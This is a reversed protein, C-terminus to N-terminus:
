EFATRKIHKLFAAVQAFVKNHVESIIERTVVTGAPYKEIAKDFTKSVVDQLAERAQYAEAIQLIRALNNEVSTVVLQNLEDPSRQALDLFAEPDYPIVLRDPIEKKELVDFRYFYDVPEGDYDDCLRIVYYYTNFLIVQAYLKKLRVDGKVMIIHSVEGEQWIGPPLHYHHIDSGKEETGKIISIIKSLHHSGRAKMLYYNVAIKAVSRMLAESGVSCDILLDSQIFVDQDSCNRELEDLDIEPHKRKLGSAIQLVQKRDRGTIFLTGNETKIVPKVPVPTRGDELHYRDGNRAKTNKVIYSKNRDRELNLFAVLHEFDTALAADITLGYDTNCARCLLRASKLRGGISNPFIHEFSRNTKNLITNCSYCASM